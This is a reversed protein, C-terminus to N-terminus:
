KQTDENVRVGIGNVEIGSEVPIVLCKKGEITMTKFMSSYEPKAQIKVNPTSIEFKSTEVINTPNILTGEGMKEEFADKFIKVKEESVGSDSLIDGVEKVTFVLPEPDKTEKHQEIRECLDRNVNKIIDFSCDEELTGTLIDQFSDKQEGPSMPVETSFIDTIFKENNSDLSKSYVLAGYINTARSDFAPFMFGLVPPMVIQLNDNTHFEREEMDYGLEAKRNVVPCISCLMYRFMNDSNDNQKQGDKSHWPVDYKDCVLLIVFNEEIEVSDIIKRFLHNRLDRDECDSKRLDMLLKHEEGEMVQKASFEINQLNRGIKGGLAKKLLNMYRENDVRPIIGMSSDIESIIEKSGNVYCGYIHAINNKEPAIRRRIEGLEKRNM